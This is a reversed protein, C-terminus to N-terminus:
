GGLAVSIAVLVEDVTVIQDGNLDASRCQSVDAEGVAILVALVLENVDVGGDEDCDGPIVVCLCDSACDSRAVDACTADWLETCCVDQSEFSCVCEACASDECGFVGEDQGRCCDSCPCSNACELSNFAIAVCIEDWVGEFDCCRPDIECVCDACLPDECGPRGDRNPACCNGGGGCPCRGSCEVRAQEVCFDDWALTCCQPDITCICDVCQNDNCGAAEHTSCCDEPGCACAGRCTDPDTADDVCFDDWVTTCCVADGSCICDLCAAGECGASENVACCDGTGCACFGGCQDPDSALDVCNQDWVGDASCCVPDLACVCDMCVASECGPTLNLSPTCCESPVCPCSGACEDRAVMACTADWGDTCCFEQGEVACVCRECVTSECGPFDTHEFCCEGGGCPCFGACEERAVLACTADWGDTCCVDQDEVACVCASCRDDDCSPGGHLTCCDGGPTPTPGETPLSTPTPFAECPCSGACDEITRAVDVCFGDWQDTCCFEQNEVACVCAQCTADDCGPGDHVSCCDGGPTPTPTSLGNTPTETQAQTAWAWGILVVCLAFARFRRLWFNATM